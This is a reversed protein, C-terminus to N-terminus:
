SMAGKLRSRIEEKLEDPMADFKIDSVDASWVEIEDLEYDDCLRSYGGAQYTESQGAVKFIGRAKITVSIKGWGIPLEYEEIIIYADL